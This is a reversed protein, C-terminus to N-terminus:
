AAAAVAGRAIGAALEWLARTFTSRGLRLAGQNSTVFVHGNPSRFM